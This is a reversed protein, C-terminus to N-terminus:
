HLYGKAGLVRCLNSVNCGHGQNISFVRLFLHPSAIHGKAMPAARSPWNRSPRRRERGHLPAPILAHEGLPWQHESNPRPPVRRRRVVTVPSSPRPSRLEPSHL